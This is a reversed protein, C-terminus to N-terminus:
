KKIKTLLNLLGGVDEKKPQLGIYEFIRVIHEEIGTESKEHPFDVWENPLEEQYFKVIGDPSKGKKYIVAVDFNKDGKFKKITGGSDILDDVILINKTEKQENFELLSLLPLNLEKAIIFAPVLGGAPIGFVAEYNKEFGSGIIKEKVLKESDESIKKFTIRM